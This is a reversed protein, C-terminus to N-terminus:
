LILAREGFKFIGKQSRSGLVLINSPIITLDSPWGFLAIVWLKIEIIQDLVAWPHAILMEFPIQNRSIDKLGYILSYVM